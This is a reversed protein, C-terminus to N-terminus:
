ILITHRLNVYRNPQPKREALVQGDHEVVNFGRLDGKRIKVTMYEEQELDLGETVMEQKIWIPSPLTELGPEQKVKVAKCNSTASPTCTSKCCKKEGVESYTVSDAPKQKPSPTRSKPKKKWSTPKKKPNLPPQPLTTSEEGHFISAKTTKSDYMVTDSSPKPQLTQSWLCSPSHKRRKRSRKKSKKKYSRKRHKKKKKRKHYSDDSESSLSSSSSSDESSDESSSSSIDHKHKRKWSKVTSTVPLSTASESLQSLHSVNQQGTFSSNISSERSTTSSSMHKKWKLFQKFESVNGDDQHIDGMLFSQASSPPVYRQKTHDPFHFDGGGQLQKNPNSFGFNGRPHFQKAM